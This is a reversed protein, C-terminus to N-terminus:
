YKNTVREQKRINSYFNTASKDFSKHQYLDSKDITLYLITDMYGISNLANELMGIQLSFLNKANIM